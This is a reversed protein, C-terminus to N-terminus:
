GALLGGDLGLGPLPALSQGAPAGAGTLGSKISQTALSMGLDNLHVSDGTYLSLSGGPTSQINAAVDIVRADKLSSRIENNYAETLSPEMDGRPLATVVWPEFGKARATDVADELKSFAKTPDTGSHLDNTGGWILMVNKGAKPDPAYLNVNATIKDLGSGGEGAMLVVSNPLSNELPVTWAHHVLSDGVAVINTYGTSVPTLDFRVPDSAM